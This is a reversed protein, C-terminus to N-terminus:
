GLRQYAAVLDHGWCGNHQNTTLDVDPEPEIHLIKGRCVRVLEMLVPDIDEPRTHILVECTFVIDFEGDAFPLRGVPPGLRVHESVWEPAAWHHMETIMTPSQDYGFIHVGSVRSLNRLHRGVGCGYELVKAPAHRAIYETLFIEQIHFYPILTKRRAYEAFWGQGNEQWYRYNDAVANTMSRISQM